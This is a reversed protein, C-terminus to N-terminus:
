TVHVKQMDGHSMRGLTLNLSQSFIQFFDHMNV